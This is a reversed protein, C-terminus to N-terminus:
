HYKLYLEIFILIVSLSILSHLSIGKSAFEEKKDIKAGKLDKKKGGIMEKEDM